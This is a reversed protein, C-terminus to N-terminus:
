YIAILMDSESRWVVMNDGPESEVREYDDLNGMMGDEPDFMSMFDGVSVNSSVGDYLEVFIVKKPTPEAAETVGALHKIRDLDPQM